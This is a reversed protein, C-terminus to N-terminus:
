GPVSGAAGGAPGTDAPGAPGAPPGATTDAGQTAGPRALRKELEEIRGAQIGLVKLLEKADKDPFLGRLKAESDLIALATRYDAANVARAFLAQRQALHRAIVPRRKKEMREILIADVRQMYTRIQRDTVGWGKETAYDMLDHHQAGDLRLRLLENVRREVEIADSKKKAKGPEKPMPCRFPLL